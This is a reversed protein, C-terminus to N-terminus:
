LGIKVSNRMLVVLEVVLPSEQSVWIVGASSGLSIKLTIDADDGFPICYLDWRLTFAIVIINLRIHVFLNIIM